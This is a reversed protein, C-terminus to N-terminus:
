TTFTELCDILKHLMKIVLVMLMKDKYGLKLLGWGTPFYEFMTWSFPSISFGYCSIMTVYDAM